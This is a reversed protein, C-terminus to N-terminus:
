NAARRRHPYGLRDWAASRAPAKLLPAAVGRVSSPEAHLEQGKRGGAGGEDGQGGSGGEGASGTVALSCVGTAALRGLEDGAAGHEDAFAVGAHRGRRGRLVKAVAVQLVMAALTPATAEKVPALASSSAVSASQLATATAVRRAARLEGLLLGM